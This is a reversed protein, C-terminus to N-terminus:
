GAGGADLAFRNFSSAIHGFKSALQWIYLNDKDVGEIKMKFTVAIVGFAFIRAVAFDGSTGIGEKYYGGFIVM